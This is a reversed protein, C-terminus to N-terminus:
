ASEQNLYTMIIENFCKGKEIVPYNSLNGSVSGVDSTAIVAEMEENQNKIEDLLQVGTMGPCNLNYDCIVFAKKLNKITDAAMYADDFCQINKFGKDELVEKMYESLLPIDDVIIIPRNLNKM